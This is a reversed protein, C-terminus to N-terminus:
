SLSEFSVDLRHILSWSRADTFIFVCFNSFDTIQSLKVGRINFHIRFQPM